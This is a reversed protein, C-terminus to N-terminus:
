PKSGLSEVAVDDKQSCVEYGAFQATSDAFPIFSKPDSAVNVHQMPAESKCRQWSVLLAGHMESCLSRKPKIVEKKGKPSGIGLQELWHMHDHTATPFWKLPVLCSQSQGVLASTSNRDEKEDDEYLQVM